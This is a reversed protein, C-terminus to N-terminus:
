KEPQRPREAGPKRQGELKALLREAEDAPLMRGIKRASVLAVQDATLEHGDAFTTGAGVGRIAKLGAQILSPADMIVVGVLRGSDRYTMWFHPMISTRGGISRGGSANPDAHAAGCPRSKLNGARDSKPRRHKHGEFRALLKAAENGSLMRGIQTSPVLAVIEAGLLHGKAFPAGGDVASVAAKLRARILSPAEIILRRDTPRRRSLDALLSADPARASPRVDSRAAAANSALGAKVM